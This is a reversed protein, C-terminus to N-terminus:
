EQSSNAWTGFLMKRISEEYALEKEEFSEGEGCLQWYGLYSSIPNYWAHIYIDSEKLDYTSLIARMEKASVAKLSRLDRDLWDRSQDSHPLVGFSYSYQALQWVYVDLGDSTDLGFYEPCQERLADVDATPTSTVNFEAWAQYSISENGDKVSFPIIFRYLGCESLDLDKAIYRTADAQHQFSFYKSTSIDEEELDVAVWKEGSKYEITFKEGYTVEEDTENHWVVNFLTQDFEAKSISELTIYIGEYNQLVTEEPDKNKLPDPLTCGTFVLCSVTALIALSFIAKKFHKM